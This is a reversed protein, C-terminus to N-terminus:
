NNNSDKALEMEKFINLLEFPTKATSNNNLRLFISVSEQVPIRKSTLHAFNLYKIIKFANFWQFFRQEFTNKSASNSNIENLKQTFAEIGIFQQLTSHLNNFTSKIIGTDVMYLCKIYNFLSKIHNFYVPNYTLFEGDEMIKQIAPGTGFPVRNSPRSSPFVKINNLEASAGLPFIKHLFYFDEGAQKRNMGGQKAYVSAKVAFCSGITHFAYPFGTQKLAQKFYRLYLEYLIIAERNKENLISTLRHEFYFTTCNLKKNDAFANQIEYIYNESVLTDADLSAIVGNSNNILSFRCIAEDMAIKRALGAGAHKNPLDGKLICHFKLQETQKNRVWKLVDYYTKNNQNIIPKPTAGSHNIVIIVETPFKAPSCKILSELTDFINPENYAPIVVILKLQQHPLPNILQKYIAQKEIYKTLLNSM